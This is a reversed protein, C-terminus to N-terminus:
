LCFVLVYIYTKWDLGDLMIWLVFFTGIIDLLLHMASNFTLENYNFSFIVLESIILFLGFAVLGSYSEEITNYDSITADSPLTVQLSDYKTWLLSTTAIFHCYMVILRLTPFSLQDFM